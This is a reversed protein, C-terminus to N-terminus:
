TMLITFLRQAATLAELLSVKGKLVLQVRSQQTQAQQDRQVLLLLRVQLALPVQRALQAQQELAEQQELLDLQVLQVSMVQQAQQV